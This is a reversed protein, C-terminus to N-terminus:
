SFLYKFQISILYLIIPYNVGGYMQWFKSVILITPYSYLFIYIYIYTLTPKPEQTWFTSPILGLPGLM